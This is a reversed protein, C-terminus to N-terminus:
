PCTPASHGFNVKPQLYDATTISGSVDYDFMCNAQDAVQGFHIKTQLVDATTVTGGRNLDGALTRVQYSDEVDGSFTIECCNQDPLAPDFELTVMTGEATVVPTDTYVDPHCNVAVNVTSAPESVEFELKQVGDMRPEINVPGLDLCLEGATDHTRCSSAAVIQGPVSELLAWFQVDDINWGCYPGGNNVKGMTWRLFVTPQDDAVASIDLDIQTWSTDAVAATNEWVTTWYDGDNSVRVYAHDKAPDGVGLWRWFTLSVSHLNTCDMVTSTLHREPFYMGYDGDLVYGYVNSDTFGSTPDPGGNEGGGGTPQGFAWQGETTWGPDSDFPWEHRLAPDGVALVIGREGDGFHDTTNTFNVTASYAGEPLGEANANIEVTVQASGYPVLTGTTDGSLTVWDADCTVEFDIPRDLRSDLQYVRNGPAFPGGVPGASEFTDAPTIRVADVTLGKPCFNATDNLDYLDLWNAGDYYYSQGLESSSEVTVRGSAGLLVPVESTRDYAYGGASLELYVYFDDGDPVAVPPDVGVTHFGTHNIIGSATSLEGTPAGGAFTDYVTVTYSVDDAATFFTVATLLEDGGAIFANVVASCDTKTDRWGHYDHYYCHDYALPEVNRFSIAGMEPHQCCHKDYYSIWFYGGLGWDDGWSNKCLWAGDGQPAQTSKNDDWGVIGIAHNPDTPDSPPQYHVYNTIFDGDYCMCTGLVGESMIKNKITNINSLDSGAVYWEIDPIYYFHFTPDHRPPPTHYSQGDIDRVAGECRTLYASTVRYDGGQHVTLGGGTPPSTDDNNHKNFGNWWDLHYEALDPEGSEGAAAWNGTVLLNGEIAAMAGHTWCTGGSQNKVSTVYNEGAVDRLDFASPPDALSVGTAVGTAM